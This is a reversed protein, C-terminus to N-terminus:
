PILIEDKTLAKELNCYFHIRPFKQSVLITKYWSGDHRNTIRKFKQVILSDGAHLAAKVLDNEREQESNSRGNYGYKLDVERNILLPLSTSNKFGIYEYWGNESSGKGVVVAQGKLVMQNATIFLTDGAQRIVSLKSQAALIQASFLTVFGLIIKIM